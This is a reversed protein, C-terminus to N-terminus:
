GIVIQHSDDCVQTGYILLFFFPRLMRIQLPFEKNVATSAEGELIELSAGMILLEGLRSL